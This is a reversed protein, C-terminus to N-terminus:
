ASSRLFRKMKDMQAIATEQARQMGESIFPWAKGASEPTLHSMNVIAEIAVADPNPVKAQQKEKHTKLTDNYIADLENAPSQATTLGLAEYYSLFDQNPALPSTTWPLMPDWFVEDSRGTHWVRRSGERAKISRLIKKGVGTSLWQLDTLNEETTGTDLAHRIWAIGCRAQKELVESLDFSQAILAPTTRCKYLDLSSYVMTVAAAMIPMMDVFKLDDAKKLWPNGGRQYSRSLALPTHDAFFNVADAMTEVVQVNRLFYSRRLGEEPEKARAKAHCDIVTEKCLLPGDQFTYKPHREHDNIFRQEAPHALILHIHCGLLQSDLATELVDLDRGWELALEPSIRENRMRVLIGNCLVMLWRFYWDLCRHRVAGAVRYTYYAKTKEDFVKLKTLVPYDFRLISYKRGRWGQKKVYENPFPALDFQAAISLLTTVELSDLCTEIFTLVNAPTPVKGAIIRMAMLTSIWASILIVLAIDIIDDRGLRPSFMSDALCLVEFYFARFNLINIVIFDWGLASQISLVTTAPGGTERELIIAEVSHIQTPLQPFLKCLQVLKMIQIESLPRRYVVNEEGRRVRVVNFMSAQTPYNARRHRNQPSPQSSSPSTAVEEGERQPNESSSPPLSHEPSPQSAPNATSSPHSLQEQTTPQNVSPNAQQAPTPNAPASQSPQSQSPGGPQSGPPYLLENFRPQLQPDVPNPYLIASAMNSYFPLQGPAGGRWYTPTHAPPAGQGGMTSGPVNGVDQDNSDLPQSSPGAQGQMTHDNSGTAAQQTPIVGDMPIGLNFPSNFWASATPTGAVSHIMGIRSAAMSLANGRQAATM